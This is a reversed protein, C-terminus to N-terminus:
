TRQMLGLSRFSAKVYHKERKDERTRADSQAANSFPTSNTLNSGLLVTWCSLAQPTSSVIRM